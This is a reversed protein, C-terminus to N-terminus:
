INVWNSNSIITSVFDANDKSSDKTFKHTKCIPANYYNSIKNFVTNPWYTTDTISANHTTFQIFYSNGTQLVRCANQLCNNSLIDYKTHHQDLYQAEALMNVYLDRSGIKFDLFRDYSENNNTTKTEIFKWYDGFPPLENGKWSATEVGSRDGTSTDGSGWSLYYNQGNSSQDTTYLLVAVHGWTIKHIFTDGATSDNLLLVHYEAGYTGQIVTFNVPTSIPGKKGISNYPTMTVNYNGAPLVGINKSTGTLNNFYVYANIGSVTLDYYSANSAATWNIVINDGTYYSPNVLVKMNGPTIPASDVVTFYANNSDPGGVSGNYPKMNVAYTGAPLTGIDKSNGAVYNDWVLYQDSFYPPKWVSLGYRTANTAATWNVVIHEGTNYTPKSMSISMTGPTVPTPHQNTGTAWLARNQSSYVVFNGDSQMVAWAGPNGDTGTAWLARNQSSYVVFNGDSQMVAWAGPNGDTGTAWLARGNNYLVLNGDTQMILIFPSATLSYNTNMVEGSHLTNVAINAIIKVTYTITKGGYTITLTENPNTASSNFGTVNAATIPEVKTTSDSYTGTVVLGSIDLADGVTYTLKTAPTTIALSQLTNTAGLAQFMRGYKIAYDKATSPDYGIIKAQAPITGEYDYITTTASNFTISTLGSCNGFAHFGISTVNSPITISTLNTCDAFVTEGITILSNPLNISSLSSCGQFAWYDISTLSEPFSVSKLNPCSEFSSDGINKVGYPISISNLCSCAYFAMKGISTVPYGGLTSPIAVDGGAGTYGTIQAGGDVINFSFDDAPLPTSTNVKAIIQSESEDFLYEAASQQYVRVNATISGILDSTVDILLDTQGNITVPFAGPSFSLSKTDTGNSSFTAGNSLAVVITVNTTGPLTSNASVNIDGVSQAIKGATVFRYSSNVNIYDSASASGIGVFLTSLIALVLLMAFRRITFKEM